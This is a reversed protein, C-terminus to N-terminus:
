YGLAARLQQVTCICEPLDALIIGGHPHPAADIEHYAAIALLKAQMTM